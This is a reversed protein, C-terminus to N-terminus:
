KSEGMFDSSEWNQIMKELLNGLIAKEEESFGKFLAHIMAQRLKICELAYEKGSETLEIDINRKDDVNPKRIIWGECEIKRLIESLSGAQVELKEMLEKQTIKEHRYIMVLVRKQGLKHGKHHMLHTCKRMMKYLEDENRKVEHMRDGGIM